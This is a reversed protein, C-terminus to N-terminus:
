RMVVAPLTSHCRREVFLSQFTLVSSKGFGILTPLDAMLHVKSSAALSSRM